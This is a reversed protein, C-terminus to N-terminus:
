SSICLKLSSLWSIARNKLRQVRLGVSPRSPLTPAGQAVRVWHQDIARLAGIWRKLLIKESHSELLLELRDRDAKWLEPQHVAAMIRELDAQVSGFGIQHGLFGPDMLDALAHNFSSFVVCGCALAEIPPLGFGETVGRSWWYPASDYLYVTSNNFLEVLDSVWGNQVMVRLGRQELAPVLTKLVYDSCKRAQVLVDIERKATSFRKGKTSWEAALANPVLFLPNRAARNGWYGMTNRSVALIPIGSPLDFSYGASHAHYASPRNHLKSLLYPADFGWSVIWLPDDQNLGKPELDLLDKFYPIGEERQRYTVLEVTAAQSLLEATQLEVLLGGCLYKGKTGPVLFRIKRL